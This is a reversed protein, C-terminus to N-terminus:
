ISSATAINIVTNIENDTYNTIIIIIYIYTYVKLSIIVM